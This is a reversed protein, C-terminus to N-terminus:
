DCDFAAFNSRRQHENTLRAKVLGEAYELTRAAISAADRLAAIDEANSHLCIDRCPEVQGTQAYSPPRITAPISALPEAEQANSWFLSRSAGIQAPQALRQKLSRALPRANNSGLVRTTRQGCTSIGRRLLSNTTSSGAASAARCLVLMVGENLAFLYFSNSFQHLEPFDTKWCLFRCRRQQRQRESAVGRARVSLLARVAFPASVELAPFHM